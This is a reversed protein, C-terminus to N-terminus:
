VQQGVFINLYSTGQALLGISIVVNLFIQEQMDRRLLYSTMIDLLIAILKRVSILM